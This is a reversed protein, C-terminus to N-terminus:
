WPSATAATARTPNSVDLSTNPWRAYNMMQGDVFVQDGDGSNYSWNMTASYISGSYRSWGAVPDAGDVLAQGKHTEAEDM